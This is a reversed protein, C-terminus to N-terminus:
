ETIYNKRESPRDLIELFNYGKVMNAQKGDKNQQYEGVYQSSVPTRSSGIVLHFTKM